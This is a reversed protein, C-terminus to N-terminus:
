QAEQLLARPQGILHRAATFSTPQQGPTMAAKGRLQLTHTASPTVAGATGFLLRTCAANSRVCAFVSKVQAGDMVRIDDIELRGPRVLPEDAELLIGALTPTPGSKWLLVTRASRAVPWPALGLAQLTKEMEADSGLIAANPWPPSTALILDQPLIANAEGATFGLAAILDEHGQYRSARFHARAILVDDSAPTADPPAVLLLDYQAGPELLVEAQLSHGGVKPPTVCPALEFVEIFHNDQPSMVQPDLEVVTVDMAIDGPKKFGSLSGPKPDTRRLKLLLQRGYAKLLQELHDIRFDVKLPDKRFHPAGGGDPRFGILYRLVARPDFSTEKKFDVPETLDAPVAAATKFTYVMQQDFPKWDTTDDPASPQKSNPGKRWGAWRMDVRLEYTAGAELLDKKEAHKGTPLGSGADEELGDKLGDKAQENEEALQQATWTIGSVGLVLVRGGGFEGIAFSAWINPDGAPPTYRYLRCLGTPVAVTGAPVGTWAVSAPKNPRKGTVAPLTDAISPDEVKSSWCLGILCGGTGIHSNVEKPGGGKVIVYAINPAGTLVSLMAPQGPALTATQTDIVANTASYATLVVPAGSWSCVKTRVWQQPSQFQIRLGTNCLWLEAKGDAAFWDTAQLPKADVSKFTLPGRVLQAPLTARPVLGAFFDCTQAIPGAQDLTDWVALLLAPQALDPALLGEFRLTKLFQYKATVHSVEYGGNVSVNEGALAVPAPFLRNKGQRVILGKSASIAAYDAYAFGGGSEKGHVNFFTPYPPVGQATPRFVIEDLEVREHGVALALNRVPTIPPECINKGTKAPDGPTGKGGDELNRMWPSPHWAMLALLRGEAESPPPDDPNLLGGKHTPWWWVSDLPGEVKVDGNATKKYLEVKDLRYAYKLESTGSWVAGPLQKPMPSFPSGSGELNNQVTHSFQLVPVTDPWVTDPSAAPDAADGARRARGTVVGNRDTLDVRTLPLPPMPIEDMKGSAVHFHVSGSITFFVLDVKGKFEGDLEYRMQGDVLQLRGNVEGSASISVIVLSLEGRVGIAGVLTLPATGLGLMWYASASLKIPGASWGVEWGSGFGISFGDLNLADKGGLKHLSKEEVMLYAWAKYDLFGPFIVISVPDGKRGQQNDAGIRFYADGLGPKRPFYGSLPITLKLLSPIEYAGRIGLMFADDNFVLLGFMKLSGQAPAQGQEKPASAESLLKADLGFIVEPEPFAVTLMGAANFTFGQDPLSGIVAGLGLVYQGQANLNTYKAEPLVKQYWDIERQIPDGGPQLAPLDRRGNAVFRGMFGFLGLGSSGLPIGVPLLLSLDIAAMTGQLQLSGRATVKAPIINLELAAQLKSPENPTNGKTLALRGGGSLTGPVNVEVGLGRLEIGLPNQGTPFTVRVTAQTVRVPGLDLLFGLDIEFWTSGSGARTGVVRLLKGLTGGITWQGPDVVDFSCDDYVLAFKALGSKSDDIEIGAGKYKIQMPKTSSLKLVSTDVEFGVQATYDFVARWRSNKLSTLREQRDEITVGYFTVEGNSAYKAAAGCAGVLAAIHVAQSDTPMADLGSLLAPGLAFATAATDNKIKFLGDPSGENNLSLSFQTAGSRADYTWRGIVTYTEHPSDLSVQEVPNSTGPLTMDNEKEWVVQVEALTPIADALSAVTPSDWRVKLQVRYPRATDRPEPLPLIQIDEGPVLVRRMLPDVQAEMNPLIPVDTGILTGTAHIDVRRYRPRPPLDPFGNGLDAAHMQACLNGQTPPPEIGAENAADVPAAEGRQHVIEPVPYLDGPQDAGTLWEFAAAARQAALQGGSPEVDCSRGIVMIEAGAATMQYAWARLAAIGFPESLGADGWGLPTTGGFDMLVQVHRIPHDGPTALPVEAPNDEAAVQVTVTALTGGPTQLKNTAEDIEWNGFGPVLTGTAHFRDQEHLGEVAVLPVWAAQDGVVRYVGGACGILLSGQPLVEVRARRRREKGDILLLDHVGPVRPFADPKFSNGVGRPMGIARGLTWRLGSPNSPSFFEIGDMQDARGSVCTVNEVQLDAGNYKVGAFRLGIFPKEFKFKDDFEVLIESAPSVALTEDEAVEIPTVKLTDGNHADFWPSEDGLATTGDPLNWLFTHDAAPTGHARLRAVDGTPAVIIRGTRATKDEPQIGGIDIEVDNVSQGFGLTMPDVPSRGFEVFIEGMLGMPSGILLDRVGANLDGIWRANRPMYVTAEQISLGQWTPSLGRSQIEPPTFDSSGDYALRKVTAGFESSGFFFHPPDFALEFVPGTPALPDIEDTHSVFFVSPLLADKDFALRLTGGGVIRVKDRSPDAVLHAAQDPSSPVLKAPTLGPITIAVKDLFLDVHFTTSAPELYSGPLAGPPPQVRQRVMQFRVGQNLLPAELPWNNLAPLGMDSVARVTGHHVHFADTSLSRHDLVSLKEFADAIATPVLMQTGPPLPLLDLLSIGRKM